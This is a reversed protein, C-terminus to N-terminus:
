LSLSTALAVTEHTAFIICTKIQWMKQELEPFHDGFLVADVGRAAMLDQGVRGLSLEVLYMNRNAVLFTICIIRLM